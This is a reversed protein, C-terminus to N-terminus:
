GISLGWVAMELCLILCHEAIALVFQWTQQNLGLHSSMRSITYLIIPSFQRPQSSLLNIQVCLHDFSTNMVVKQNALAMFM